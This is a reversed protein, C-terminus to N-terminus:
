LACFILKTFANQLMQIIMEKFIMEDHSFLLLGTQVVVNIMRDAMVPKIAM